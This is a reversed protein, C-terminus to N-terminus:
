LPVCSYNQHKTKKTNEIMWWVVSGKSIWYQFAVLFLFFDFVGKYSGHWSLVEVGRMFGFVFVDVLFFVQSCFLVYDFPVLSYPVFFVFLLPVIALTSKM